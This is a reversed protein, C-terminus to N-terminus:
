RKRSNRLQTFLGIIGLIIWVALAFFRTTGDAVLIIQGDDTVSSMGPILILAGYIIQASGIFATALMIIYKAIFLALIGGIIAGAILAITTMTPDLGLNQAVVTAVTVGLGGGAIVFAIQYLFFFLIGIIAGLIVGALLAVGQGGDGLLSAGIGFGVAFGLLVLFLRLFRYGFFCNLFGTGVSVIAAIVIFSPNNILEQM